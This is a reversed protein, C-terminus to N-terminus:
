AADAVKEEYRRIAARTERLAEETSWVSGSVIGSWGIDGWHKPWRWLSAKSSSDQGSKDAELVRTLESERFRLITLYETLSVVEILGKAAAESGLSRILRQNHRTAAISYVGYDYEFEPCESAVASWWYYRRAPGSLDRHM